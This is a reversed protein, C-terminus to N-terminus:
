KEMIHEPFEHFINSHVLKKDIYYKEYIYVNRNESRKEIM